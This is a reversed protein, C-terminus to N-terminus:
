IILLHQPLCVFILEEDFRTVILEVESIGGILGVSYGAVGQEGFQLGFPTEPGFAIGLVRAIDVEVVPGEDTEHVLFVKLGFVQLSHM